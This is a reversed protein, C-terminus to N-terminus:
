PTSITLNGGSQNMDYHRLFEMGLLAIEGDMSPNIHARVNRQTFPGIALSALRTTFVRATGNATMVEFSRGRKLGLRRAVSDPISIGTAGTDVLFRVPQGNALGDLQYQGFRDSKLQLAQAGSESSVWEPANANRRNDIWQQALWSGGGLVLIWLLAIMWGAITKGSDQTSDTKTDSMLM